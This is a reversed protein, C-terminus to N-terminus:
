GKERGMLQVETELEIGSAERVRSRAREILALVDAASAGGTNAIFNAHVSSIQAAGVRDGKLGAAEILRGAFDGAPNRFVSGCSPVNLPQSASRRALLEDIQAQVEEPSSQSVSLGAAVVLSGAPLGHLGRYRFDLRKRELTEERGGDGSVIVIERVVDKLERTGIGANM